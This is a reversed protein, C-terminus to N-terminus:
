SNSQSVEKGSTATNRALASAPRTLPQPSAAAGNDTLVHTLQFPFAAAAERLFAIASRETEDDKVALPVSRSCRDIRRVSSAQSARWASRKGMDRSQSLARGVGALLDAAGVPKEILDVAGAKMAGVAM